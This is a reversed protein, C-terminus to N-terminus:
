RKDTALVACRPDADLSEEGVEEVRRISPPVVPCSHDAPVAIGIIWVMSRRHWRVHVRTIHVGVVPIPLGKSACGMKRDLIRAYRPARSGSIAQAEYTVLYGSMRVVTM